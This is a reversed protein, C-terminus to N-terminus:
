EIFLPLEVDFEIPHVQDDGEVKFSAIAQIIYSGKPLDRPRKNQGLYAKLDSIGAANMNYTIGLSSPYERVSKDGNKYTSKIQPLQLMQSYPPEGDRRISYSFPFAAHSVTVPQKGIYELETWINLDEGVAYRDKAAYIALKFDSVTKSAHTTSKGRVPLPDDIYIESTIENYGVLAGLKETFFRIPVYAHGKYNLVTYDSNLDTKEGNIFIPVPFLVTQIADYATTRLPFLLFCLLVGLGVFRKKM